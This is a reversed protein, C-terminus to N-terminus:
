ITLGREILHFKQGNHKALQRRQHFLMGRRAVYSQSQLQVLPHALLFRIVSTLFHHNVSRSSVHSTEPFLRHRSPKEIQCVLHHVPWRFANSYPVVKAILVAKCLISVDHGQGDCQLGMSRLTPLDFSQRHADNSWFLASSM